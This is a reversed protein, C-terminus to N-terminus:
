KCANNMFNLAFSENLEDNMIEDAIKRYIFRENLFSRLHKEQNVIALKLSVNSLAKWVKDFDEADILDDQMGYIIITPITIKKLSSCINITPISNFGFYSKKLNNTIKQLCAKNQCFSWWSGFTGSPKGLFTKSKLIKDFLKKSNPWISDFILETFLNPDKAQAKAMMAAGFCFGFGIVKKYKKRKKFHNAVAIVDEEESLGFTTKSSNYYKPFYKNLFGYSTKQTPAFHGRFNFFVLDANNFIWLVPCFQKYFNNFGPAVVVLVDSNRNHFVTELPIGKNKLTIKKGSCYKKELENKKKFFDFQWDDSWSIKCKPDNTKLDRCVIKKTSVSEKTFSDIIPSLFKTKQEINFLFNFEKNTKESLYPKNVNFKVWLGEAPLTQTSNCLNITMYVLFVVVIKKVLRLKIM